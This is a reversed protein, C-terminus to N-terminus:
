FNASYGTFSSCHIIVIPGVICYCSSIKMVIIQSVTQFTINAIDLICTLGSFSFYTELDSIKTDFMM